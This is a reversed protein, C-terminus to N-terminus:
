EESVAIMKKTEWIRIRKDAGCTAVLHKKPHSACGWLEAQKAGEFHGQVITATKNGKMDLEFVEAGRTGALLKSNEKNVALSRLGPSPGAVKSLDISRVKQVSETWIYIQGDNAGSAFEKTKQLNTLCWVPESHAKIV